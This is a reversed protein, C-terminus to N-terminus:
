QFGLALRQESWLMPLETRTLRDTTLEPPHRGSAISEVIDPALFALRILRSVYAETVRESQALALVSATEGTALREYWRRGRAITKVMVMDVPRSETNGSGIVLRLEECRRRIQM